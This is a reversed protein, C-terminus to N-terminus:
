EAYQMEDLMSIVLIPIDHRLKKIDKILDIGNSEKLLLDVIIIDPDTKQIMRWATVADEADGCVDMDDEQIILEKLGLRYVPHDEVIFIKIKGGLPRNQKTM